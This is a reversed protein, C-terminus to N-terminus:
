YHLMYTLPMPLFDQMKTLALKLWQKKLAIYTHKKGEYIIGMTYM